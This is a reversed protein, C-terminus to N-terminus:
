SGPNALHEEEQWAQNLREAWRIFTDADERYRLSTPGPEYSMLPKVPLPNDHKDVGQFALWAAGAAAGADGVVSVPQGFVDAIIQAWVPSASGGGTMVVRRALGSGANEQMAVWAHYLSFAVGELVAKGIEAATHHPRIGMLIGPIQANMLPAREGQLYPFFFIGDSSVEAVRRDLESYTLDPFFADRYWRWCLAAAQTVAMWHWVGPVAHCFAHVAPHRPPQFEGTPMFVVGSTGLSIGLTGPSVVGTGVASAEQDGAGAVVPLGRLCEPGRMVSGVITASEVAPGFWSSTELGLHQAWESAWQRRAVDFLYTGSADTVDTAWSGSVQNRLWDKALAVRRLNDFIRPEHDRIWLLRLASFNALPYNGGVADTGATGWRDILMPGYHSARQDSWLIAPRLPCGNADTVVTTHMQGTFGVGRLHVPLSAAVFQEAIADYAALWASPEQEFWTEAPSGIPYPHSKEWLVEGAENLVVAKLAQTGVDWGMFASDV